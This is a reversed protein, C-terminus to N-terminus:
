KRWRRVIEDYDEDAADTVEYHERLQKLETALQEQVATRDVADM